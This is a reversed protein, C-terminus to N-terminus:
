ILKQEEFFRVVKIAYENGKQAARQFWFFSKKIDRLGEEEYLLKGLAIQAHENEAEAAITYHRKAQQADLSLGGVGNQFFYALMFHGESLGKNAAKEYWLRAKGLNKTVGKGEFYAHAIRTFAPAHGLNAATLYYEFAMQPNPKGNIGQDHYLDGVLLNASASRQKAAAIALEVMKDRYKKAKAHRDLKTYLENLQAYNVYNDPEMATAALYYNICEQYTQRSLEAWEEQYRNAFQIKANIGMASYYFLNERIENLRDKQTFNDTDFDDLANKLVKRYKTIKGIQQSQIALDLKLNLLQIREEKSLLWSPLWSLNNLAVAHGKALDSEANMDNYDNHFIPIELPALYEQFLPEFGVVAIKHDSLHKLLAYTEAIKRAKRLEPFHAEYWSFQREFNHIAAVMHPYFDAPADQSFVKQGNIDYSFTQYNVTMGLNSAKLTNNSHDVVFAVQNFELFLRAEIGLFSRNAMRKVAKWNSWWQRIEKLELLMPNQYGPATLEPPLANGRLSYGYCVAGLTRDADALAAALTSNQSVGVFEDQSVAALRKDKSLLTLGALHALEDESLGSDYKYQGNLLFCGTEPVYQVYQVPQRLKATSKILIGGPFRGYTKEIARIHDQNKSSELRFVPPIESASPKNQFIQYSRRLHHIDENSVYFQIAGTTGGNPKFSLKGAKNYQWDGDAVQGVFITTGKPIVIREYFLATNGPPLKFKERVQAASYIRNSPSFWNGLPILEGNRGIDSATYRLVVRDYPLVLKKTQQKYFADLHDKPLNPQGFALAFCYFSLACLVLLHKKM